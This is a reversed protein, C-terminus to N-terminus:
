VNRPASALLLFPLLLVLAAPYKISHYFYPGTSPPILEPLGIWLFGVVAAFAAARRRAALRRVEDSLPLLTAPLVWVLNMVWTWPGSLLVCILAVTWYALEAPPSRSARRRPWERVAVLLFLGTFLMMSLPSASVRTRTFHEIVTRVPRVLTGNHAFRLATPLYARGDVIVRGDATMPRRALIEVPLEPGAPEHRDDIRAIRPLEKLWYQLEVDPGLVVASAAEIACVSIATALIAVWRRRLALFPVLLACHLKLIIAAALFLGALFPRREISVACAMAGLLLFTDHQGREMELLLPFCAAAIGALIVMQARDVNVQALRRSVAMAGFLAACSAATWILKALGYPLVALPLVLVAVSPPSVFLGHVHISVGDWYRLGAALNNRYPSLGDWASRAGAVQSAFDMQLGNAVFFAVWLAFRVLLAAAIALSAARLARRSIM